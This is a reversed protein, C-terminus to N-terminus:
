HGPCGPEYSAFQLFPVGPSKTAVGKWVTTLTADGVVRVAHYQNPYVVLTGTLQTTVMLCTNNSQWQGATRQTGLLTFTNSGIAEGYLAVEVAVGNCTAADGMYNGLEAHPIASAVAPYPVHEVGDVEM